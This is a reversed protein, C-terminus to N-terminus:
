QGRLKTNPLYPQLVSVFSQMTEPHHATFFTDPGCLLSDSDKFQQLYYSSSCVPGKGCSLSLESLWRGISRIADEDHLEKAVTTRFEHPIDSTLLLRISEEIKTIDFSEELLGATLAYTAKQNKIDMAIMDVLNQQLINKLVDPRYGNTDLKVLFGKSKIKALFEPLDPQLTPEGGSVCVGELRSKRSELFQFFEEETIHECAEPSLVLAANHCFPCRFNCAGTFAVCALYGPYDLLTLKGLGHLLM